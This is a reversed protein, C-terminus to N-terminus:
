QKIPIFMVVVKNFETTTYITGIHKDDFMFEEQDPLGVKMVLSARKADEPVVDEPLKGMCKALVNRLINDKEAVVKKYLSNTFSSFHELDGVREELSKEKPISLLKVGRKELLDNMNKTLNKILEVNTTSVLASIEIVKIVEKEDLWNQDAMISM